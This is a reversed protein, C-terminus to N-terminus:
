YGDKARQFDEVSVDDGSDTSKKGGGEAAIEAASPGQRTQKKQQTVKKEKGTSDDNQQQQAAVQSLFQGLKANLVLSKAFAAAMPNSRYAAPFKSITDKVMNQLEVNNDIIKFTSSEFNGIWDKAEKAKAGHGEILTQLKVQQKALQAQAGDVFSNVLEETEKTIPQPATEFFEGTERDIGLRTFTEANGSRVKTLQNKWHQLVAGAKNITESARGFEPSLLFGHEHEYYNDPLKVIGKEADALKAKVTELEPKIKKYEDHIPRLKNYADNSMNKFLAAEDDALGSYDRQQVQKQQAVVKKEGAPAVDVKSSDVEKGEASKNADPLKVDGGRGTVDLFDNVDLAKDDASDASERGAEAEDVTEDVVEDTPKVQQETDKAQAVAKSTRAVIAKQEAQAEASVTGDISIEENVSKAM